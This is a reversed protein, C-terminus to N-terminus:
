ARAAVPSLANAGTAAYINVLSGSGTGLLGVEGGSETTKHSKCAVLLVLVPLALALRRCRAGGWRTKSTLWGHESTQRMMGCPSWTM